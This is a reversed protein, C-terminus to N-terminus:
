VYKACEKPWKGTAARYRLSKPNKRMNIVRQREKYIKKWKRQILAINHTKIVCIMEGTELMQEDLVNVNYYKPNTVIKEFDTYDTNKIYKPASEYADEMMDLYSEYDNDYFEEPEVETNVLYKYKMYTNDGGHIRPNYLECIGIIM